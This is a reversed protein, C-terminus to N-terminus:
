GGFTARAAVSEALWFNWLVWAAVFLLVGIIVIGHPKTAHHVLPHRKKEAKAPTSASM